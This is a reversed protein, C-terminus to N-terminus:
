VPLKKMRGWDGAEVHLQIHKERSLIQVNEPANNGRDRDVHHRCLDEKSGTLECVDEPGIPFMRQCEKILAWPYSTM